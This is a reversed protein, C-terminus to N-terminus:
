GRGRVVRDMVEVDGWWESLPFRRDVEAIAQALSWSRFVAPIRERGGHLAPVKVFWWPAADPQLAPEVVHRPWGRLLEVGDLRQAWTELQRDEPWRRGVDETWARRTERRHHALVELAETVVPERIGLARAVEGALGTRDPGELTQLLLELTM